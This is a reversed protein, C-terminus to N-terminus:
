LICTSSLCLRIINSSCSILYYDCNVCIALFNPVSFTKKWSLFLIESAKEDQIFVNFVRMGRPGNTYVIEAFHLDVSYDGPPLDRFEYCFNGYRASQYISPLDGGDAVEEDTRLVDGGQFFRDAEVEIESHGQRRLEEGGANVFIVRREREDLCFPLLFSSSRRSSFNSASFLRFKM